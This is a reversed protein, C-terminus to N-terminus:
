LKEKPIEALKQWQSSQDRSIGLDALTQPKIDSGGVDLKKPHPRDRILGTKQGEKVLEGTKREARVRIEAVHREAERNLAVWSV